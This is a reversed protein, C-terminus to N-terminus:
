AATSQVTGDSRLGQGRGRGRGRGGLGRGRGLGQPLPPGARYNNYGASGQHINRDGYGRGWGRYGRGRGRGRSRGGYRRGYDMGGDRNYELVGNNFNGLACM